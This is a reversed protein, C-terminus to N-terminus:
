LKFDYTDALPTMREVTLKDEKNWDDYKPYTGIKQVNIPYKLINKLRRSEKTGFYPNAVEMFDFIKITVEPNVFLDQSLITCIQNPSITQKFNEIENNITNWQWAIKEIQSMTPWKKILSSNIRPELHGSIESNMTTYYGRRIGSRIFEGPNRVLHIFKANPFINSIAPAYLSIRNNTECYKLSNEYCKKILDLRAHLFGAKLQDITYQNKYAHYSQFALEPYPEHEVWVENSLNIIETLLKTGCRGTSLIFICKYDYLEELKTLNRIFTKRKQFLYWKQFAAYANQLNRIM